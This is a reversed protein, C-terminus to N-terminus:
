VEIVGSADISGSGFTFETVLPLLRHDHLQAPSREEVGEAAEAGPTAVDQSGSERPGSSDPSMRRATGNNMVLRGYVLLAFCRNFLEFARRYTAPSTSVAIDYTDMIDRKALSSVNPSGFSLSESKLSM